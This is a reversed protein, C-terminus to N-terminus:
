GSTKKSITQNEKKNALNEQKIENNQLTMSNMHGKMFAMKATMKQMFDSLDKEKKVYAM